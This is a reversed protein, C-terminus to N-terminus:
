RDRLQRIWVMKLLYFDFCFLYDKRERQLNFLFLKNPSIRLILSFILESKRYFSIRIKEKEIKENQKRQDNV